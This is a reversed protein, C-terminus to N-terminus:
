GGHNFHKSGLVKSPYGYGHRDNNGGWYHFLSKSIDGHRTILESLIRTGQQVNYDIDFIRDRDVEPHVDLYVQMAGYACPRGNVYSVAFPDFRSERHAVAMILYPSVGYVKGWKYAAKAVRYVNRDNARYTEILFRAEDLEPKLSAVRKLEWEQSRVTKTLLVITRKDRVGQRLASNAVWACGISVLLLGLIAFTIAPRYKM